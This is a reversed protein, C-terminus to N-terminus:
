KPALEAEMGVFEGYRKVAAEIGRLEAASVPSFLRCAIIVRGKAERRGWTGSIRGGSAITPSLLAHLEKLHAPDVSASRDKYAVLLEDFPPLLIVQARTAPSGRTAASAGRRAASAGRAAPGWFSTGDRKMEALKSKVSDLGVAARSLTLGAWWAFDRVTAPGHSNFYGLALRGLAEERALAPTAPIWEDLLVFTHQKGRRAGLCIVGEHALWGLIHIGRQGEPSVGEKEFLSYMEGRTLAVGDRLKKEALKRCRALEAAGLELQRYRGASRAIVRPTLLRLMWRAHESPVIHLTGRMPWTRVISRETLAAEVVAETAERMRMGIALLGGRYDQAQVAGMHRVVEAATAPKEGQLLQNTMRPAAIEVSGM